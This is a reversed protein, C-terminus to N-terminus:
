IQAPVRWNLHSYLIEQFYRSSVKKSESASLSTPIYSRKRLKRNKRSTRRDLFSEDDSGSTTWETESRKRKQHFIILNSKPTSNFIKKSCYEQDSSETQGSEEYDSYRWENSSLGESNIDDM